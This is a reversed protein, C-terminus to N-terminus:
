YPRAPKKWQIYREVPDILKGKEDKPYYKRAFMNDRLLRDATLLTGKVIGIKDIVKRAFDGCAPKMPCHHTETVSIGLKYIDFLGKLVIKVANSPPQLKTTDPASLSDTALTLSSMVIILIIVKRM